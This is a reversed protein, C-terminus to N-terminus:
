SSRGKETGHDDNCFGVRGLLLDLVDDIADLFPAQAGLDGAAGHADDDADDPGLIDDALLGEGGDGADFGDRRDELGVLQDGM